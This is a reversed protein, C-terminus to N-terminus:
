LPMTFFRGVDGFVERALAEWFLDVRTKPETSPPDIQTGVDHFVCASTWSEYVNTAFIGVCVVAVLFALWVYWARNLGLWMPDTARLNLLLWILVGASM